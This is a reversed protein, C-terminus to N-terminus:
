TKIPVYGSHRELVNRLSKEIVLNTVTERKTDESTTGVLNLPKMISVEGTMTPRLFSVKMNPTIHRPATLSLTVPLNVYLVKENKTSDCCRFFRTAGTRSCSTNNTM